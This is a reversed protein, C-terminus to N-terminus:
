NGKVIDFSLLVTYFSLVQQATLLCLLSLTIFSNVPRLDLPLLKNSQNTSRDISDIGKQFM